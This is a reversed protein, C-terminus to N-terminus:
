QLLWKKIGELVHIEAQLGKAAQEIERRKTRTMSNIIRQQQEITKEVIDLLLKDKRWLLLPGLKWIYKLLISSEENISDAGASEIGGAKIKDLDVQEWFGCFEALDTALKKIKSEIDKLSYGELRSFCFVYYIFGEEAVLCEAKLKWEKLLLQVRVQEEAGQPQLILTRIDEMVPPNSQLIELINKGGMGAIVLTEVEGKKLPVLGNGLRIEIMDTLGHARVTELASEYPGRHNDVGIAKAIVRQQLLNVPLYAHDTGIDALNTGRPVFSAITKLRPGLKMLKKVRDNKVIVVM